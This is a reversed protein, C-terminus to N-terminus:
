ARHQQVRNWIWGGALAVLAIGLGVWGFRSLVADVVDLNRGLLFGIMTITTAWVAVTPVMFAVFRRAPMDSMGAVFPVFAAIGTAFRGFVVAKGGHRRFFRGTRDVHRELRDSFPLARVVRRGHRSGLWFGAGSGAWAATIGLTLVVWLELDGNAAYVGGLALVVDGPVIIGVLAFTELFVAVPVIGYGAVRFFGGAFDVIQRVLGLGRV